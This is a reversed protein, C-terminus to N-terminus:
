KATQPTLARDIMANFAPGLDDASFNLWQRVTMEADAIAEIGAEKMEPTPGRMAEIAVRARRLMTAKAPATLEEWAMKTRPPLSTEIDEALARAVREVVDM